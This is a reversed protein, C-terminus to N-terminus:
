QKDGKRANLIAMDAIAERNARQIIGQYVVMVRRYLALVQRYVWRCFPVVVDNWLARLVRRLARWVARLGRRIVRWLSRLMETLLWRLVRVPWFAIDLMFSIVLRRFSFNGHSQQTACLELFDEPALALLQIGHRVTEPALLEDLRKGRLQEHKWNQYEVRKRAIAHPLYIVAWLLGILFYTPVTLWWPLVLLTAILV